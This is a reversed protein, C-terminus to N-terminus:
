PKWPIFPKPLVALEAIRRVLDPEIQWMSLCPKLNRAAVVAAM